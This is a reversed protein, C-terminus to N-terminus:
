KPPWGFGSSPHPGGIGGFPTAPKFSFGPPAGSPGGLISPHMVFPHANYVPRSPISTRPGLNVGSALRATLSSMVEDEEVDNENAEGGWEKVHAQKEAAVLGRMSAVLGILTSNNMASTYDRMNNNNNNNNNSNNFEKKSAAVLAEQIQAVSAGTKQIQEVVEQKAQEVRDAPVAKHNVPAVEAAAKLAEALAKKARRKEAAEEKKRAAIKLALARSANRNVARLARNLRLTPNKPAVNLRPQPAARSARRTRSSSKLEKLFGYERFLPRVKNADSGYIKLIVTNLTNDKFPGDTKFSGVKAYHRFESEQEATLIVSSHGEKKIKGLLGMMAGIPNNVVTIKKMTKHANKKPMGGVLRRTKRRRSGGRKGGGRKARNPLTRPVCMFGCFVNYNLGDKNAADDRSDRNALEPNYILRGASDKNTVATGGPKHSWFGNSDQRYFHYDQKPDIVLAIKSYGKPCKDTFKIPRGNRAIEIAPMDGKLRMFLDYCRKEGSEDFRKQGSFYGPQHFPVKCEDKDNGNCEEPTPLDMIDFAYAFCNHNHQVYAKKNYLRPMYVPEYGSLPSQAPCQKRAACRACFPSVATPFQSNVAGCCQCKDPTLPLRKQIAAGIM